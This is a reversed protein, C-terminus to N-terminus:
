PLFANCSYNAAYGSYMYTHLIAYICTCVHISYAQYNNYYMLNYVNYQSLM